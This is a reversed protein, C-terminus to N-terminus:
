SANSSLTTFDRAAPANSTGYANGHVNATSGAWLVVAALLAVALPKGANMANEEEFERGANGKECYLLV